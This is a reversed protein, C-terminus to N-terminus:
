RKVLNQTDCKADCAAPERYEIRGSYVNTIEKFCQGNENTVRILRAQRKEDEWAQCLTSIKMQTRLSSTSGTIREIAEPSLVGAFASPFLSASAHDPGLQTLSMWHSIAPRNKPYMQVLIDRNECSGARLDVDNGLPVQQMEMGGVCLGNKKWLAKQTDAYDISIVDKYADPDNYRKYLDKAPEYFGVLGVMIGIAAAPGQWRPGVHAEGHAKQQYM